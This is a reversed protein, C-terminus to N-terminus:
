YWTPSRSWHRLMTNLAQTWEYEFCQALQQIEEATPETDGWMEPKAAEAM